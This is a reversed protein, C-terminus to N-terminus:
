PMATSDTGVSCNTIKTTSDPSIPTSAATNGARLAARISTSCAIVVSYGVSHDAGRSILTVVRRSGASGNRIDSARRPPQADAATAITRSRLDPEDEEAVPRRDGDVPHHPPRANGQWSVGAAAAPFGEAAIRDGSAPRRPIRIGVRLVRAARACPMRPCHDRRRRKMRRRSVAWLPPSTSGARDLGHRRVEHRGSAAPSGAGRDAMADSGRWRGATSAVVEPRM